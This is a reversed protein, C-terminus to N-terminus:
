KIEVTIILTQDNMPLEPLEVMVPAVNAPTVYEIEDSWNSSDWTAPNYRKAKFYYTTSPKINGINVSTESPGSLQGYCKSYDGAIETVFVGTVQNAEGPTFEVHATWACTLVPFLAFLVLLIFVPFLKKM